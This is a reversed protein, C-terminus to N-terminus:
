RKQSLHRALYLAIGMITIGIVLFVAIGIGGTAPLTPTKSNTIEKSIVDNTASEKEAKVPALLKMYGKPAQTEVIWYDMGSLLNDFQANGQEDTTVEIDHANESDSWRADSPVVMGEWTDSVYRRIFKGARANEESDAIKFKAGSLAKQTDSADVKHLKLNLLRKNIVNIRLIPVNAEVGIAGWTQGPNYYAGGSGQPVSKVTFRGSSDLQLIIDRDLKQYGDPAKMERLKYEVVGSTPIPINGIYAIGRATKGNSDVLVDTTVSTVDEGDKNKITVPNDSSDYLSFVAGSLWGDGQKTIYLPVTNKDAVRIEATPTAESHILEVTSVTQGNADVTNYDAALKVGGIDDIIFEIDRGFSTYGAPSQTERLVYHLEFDTKLLVPLAINEFTIYGNGDTVGEAVQTLSAGSKRFLTFRAGALTKTNSLDTKKVRINFVKKNVMEILHDDEKTFHAAIVTQTPISGTNTSTPVYLDLTTGEPFTHNPAEKVLELYAKNEDPTVGWGLFNELGSTFHWIAMQTVFNFSEDSLNYKEQIGTADSPFGLYVVGLLRKRLEEGRFLATAPLFKNLNEITGYLHKYSDGTLGDNPWMVNPTMFCYVNKYQNSYGEIYQRLVKRKHNPTTNQVLNDRSRVKIDSTVEIVSDGDSANESAKVEFKIPAAIMYGDPASLEVLTYTGYDLEEAHIEGTSTWTAIRNAENSTDYGKYLALTAGPLSQGSGLVTKDFRVTVKKADSVDVTYIRNDNKVGISEFDQGPNAWGTNVASPKSVTTFKGNSDLQLVIDGDLKQYGPPAAVERLKYTVTGSTPIPINGIYAIGQSRHNAQDTIVGTTVSTVNEGKENKITVLNDSSDYLSFEAGSLWKTGSGTALERKRIRLPITNDTNRIWVESLEQGPVLNIAPINPADSRSVVGQYDDKSEAMSIAGNSDITLTWDETPLRYGNPAKTEKLKYTETGTLPLPLNGIYADGSADTTVETVTNGNKDTFSVPTNDKLLQFTAGEARGWENNYKRIRFSTNSIEKRLVLGVREPEVVKLNNITGAFSNWAAKASEESTKPNLLNAAVEAPAQMTIFVDQGSPISAVGDKLVMKFSHITSWDTVRDALMWNPDTAGGPNSPKQSQDSYYAVNYIDDRKPNTSTSYYVDVKGDWAAPLDIPGTMTLGFKSDRAKNSVVTLDGVTPLIDIFAMRSIANGSTNSINLRYLVRGSLDAHGMKSYDSDLNGKVAKNLILTDNSVFNYRALGHVVQDTTSGNQNYDNNDIQLDSNSGAKLPTSTSGYADIELLSSASESVTVNVEYTMYKGPKLQKDSDGEWEYVILQRGTGNFNDIIKKVTGKSQSYTWNPKSKDVTVGKPLLTSAVLSQDMARNSSDVNRFTVKLRNAGPKTVINGDRTLLEPTITAMAPTNNKAAIFATRPGYETKIYKDEQWTGQKYTQGISPYRVFDINRAGSEDFNVMAIRGFTYSQNKVYQPKSNNLNPNITYTDIVQAAFGANLIESNDEKGWIVEYSKVHDTAALGLDSRTLTTHNFRLGQGGSTITGWPETYTIPYEGPKFVKTKTTGDKLTMKVTLTPYNTSTGGSIKGGQVQGNVNSYAFFTGLTPKIESLELNDDVDRHIGVYRYDNKFPNYNGYGPNETWWSPRSPTGMVERQGSSVLTPPTDITTTETIPIWVQNRGLKFYFKANSQDYYIYADNTQDSNVRNNGANDYFTYKTGNVTIEAVRRPHTGQNWVISINVPTTRNNRTNTAIGQYGGYTLNNYYTRNALITPMYMMTFSLKTSPSNEVTPNPNANSLDGLGGNGNSPGRNFGYVYTGNSPPLPTSPSAVIGNVENSKTSITENFNTTATGTATNKFIAGSTNPAKTSFIVEDSWLYGKTALNNKQQDISPATFKKSSDGVFTLGNPNDDKITITEGPKLYQGGTNAMSVTAKVKWQVVDGPSVSQSADGNKGLYQKTVTLDPKSSEVVTYVDTGSNYVVKGDHEIVAQVKMLDGNPIIGNTSNIQLETAYNQGTTLQPITWTLTKKDSSLVPQVGAITMRSVDSSIQYYTTNEPLKITLKVNNVAGEIAGSAKVYFKFIGTEGSKITPREAEIYGTVGEANPDSIAREDGISASLTSPVAFLSTALNPFIGNISFLSPFITSSTEETSNEQTDETAESQNSEVQPEEGTTTQATENDTSFIEETNSDPQSSSETTGESISNETPTTQENINESSSTGETSSDSQNPEGQTEESATTQGTESDSSFTEPNDGTVVLHAPFSQIKESDSIEDLNVPQANSTTAILQAELERDSVLVVRIKKQNNQFHLRLFSSQTTADKTKEEILTRVNVTESGEFWEEALLAQNASVSQEVQYNIGDPLEIDVDQVVSEPREITFTAEQNVKLSAPQAGEATLEVNDKIIKLERTTAIDDAKVVKMSALPILTNAALLILLM